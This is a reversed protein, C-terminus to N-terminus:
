QLKLIRIRFLNLGLTNTKRLLLKRTNLSIIISQVPIYMTENNAISTSISCSDLFKVRLRMLSVYFHRQLRLIM